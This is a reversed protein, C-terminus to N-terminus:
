PVYIMKATRTAGGSRFVCFYIGAAFGRGAPRWLIEHLGRTREGAEIREVLRGSVDYVAIEVDAPAPVFFGITTEAGFPNPYNVVFPSVGIQFPGTLVYPEEIGGNLFAVIRYAYLAGREVDTDRWSFSGDNGRLTDPTVPEFPGGNMSRFVMCGRIGPLDRLAWSVLLHEERETVFANRYVSVVTVSEALMAFQGDGSRVVITWEGAYLEEVPLYALIREEGLWEVARARVTDAGRALFCDAGYLMWTGRIDLVAEGGLLKNITDPSASALSPAPMGGVFMASASGSGGTSIGSVVVPTSAGGNSNSRPTTTSGFSRNDTSGPFPDGTDGYDGALLNYEGDAEEIVLGRCQTNTSGGSNGLLTYAISNEAHYIIMGQGRLSADFGLRRRNEVIFYEAAAGDYRFGGADDTFDASYDLGGGWLHVNDINFTYGGRSDYYGDEDSFSEDSTFLFRLTFSAPEAPLYLGLDITERRTFQGTYRALTDAAGDRELIIMGFDYDSEVDMSVDYQLTVPRTADVSFERIMSEHWGNGYGEGGPWGRAQAESPKYSCVLAGNNIGYLYRRFSSRSPM